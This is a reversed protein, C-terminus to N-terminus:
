KVVINYRITPSNGTPFFVEVVAADAGAYGPASRYYALTAPSKTGNCRYPPDGPSYNPFAVGDAIEVTGHAPQTIVRASVHGLPACDHDLSQYTGLNLREGNLATKTVLVFKATALRATPTM